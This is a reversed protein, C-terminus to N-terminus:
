LHRRWSADERNLGFPHLTGLQKILKAERVKRQTSDHVRVLGRISMQGIDGACCNSFHLAVDSKEHRERVVDNVHQRFRTGLMQSTEGIYLIGCKLCTIAYIVDKSTCTFSIRVGFSRLPGTLEPEQSVHDCTKCRSRGCAFTGPIEDTPLSARVLHQRLNRENKYAIVINNDFCAGIDADGALVRANRSVVGVIKRTADCYPIVLPIKHKGENVRTLLADSRQVNSVRRLGEQIVSQPYGRAEFFSAMKTCEHSFEDNNSCIRRVRLFQSYPISTRCKLPHHSDYRLYAHKDTPKYHVSTEISNDVITMSVDLCSLGEESVEYTFEISPHFCNFAEIFAVLDARDLLTTGFCDDIYRKYVEPIPGNYTNMFEYELFGMFLCAYSPGMRTGMSVGRVQTYYEDNFEFHNLTLVLEALRILTDTPPDLIPRKDLFHRLANLGDANPIVTYLSKVDMTYLLRQSQRASRPLDRVIRLLHNTDKVFSPLKEVIPQFQDDLFASILETPCSCASVVPRGPTNVKHIKPLLYFKSCRPNCNILNLSGDSLNGDNIEEQIVDSVTSNNINTLDSSEKRYFVTDSLQRDAEAVYLDKRWAVVAGGKDAPKVIVDERQKINKLAKQEEPTFNSKKPRTNLSILKVEERCREIFHEVGAPSTLPTWDSTKRQYKSYPDEDPQGDHISKNPNNFHAHLRVRRYFRDLDLLIDDESVHRPTPIFKLGKGLVQREAASLELDEPITVVNNIDKFVQPPILADMKKEKKSSLSDYLTQNLRYVCTKLGKIQHESLDNTTSFYERCDTVRQTAIEARSSFDQLTMRMLRKSYTATARSCRSRMQHSSLNIGPKVTFGKPIVKHSLCSRLFSMHSFMRTKSFVSQGYLMCMKRGVVPLSTVFERLKTYVEKNIKMIPTDCIDFTIIGFCM